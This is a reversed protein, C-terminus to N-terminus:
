LCSKASPSSRTRASAVPTASPLRHALWAALQQRGSDGIHLGLKTRRWLMDDPTMAWEQKLLHIAECEYFGAGFHVGLGAADRSGAFIRRAITGYTRVLRASTAMGLAPVAAALEAALRALGDPAFDGGPLAVNRTWAPGAAPFIAALKALVEEALHRYTTIKGGIITLLPAAGDGAELDLVFDRTADQASRKGDDYLSRVGAYSWVVDAPRVPAAFYESVARCLYEVEEKSISVAALDGTFDVDTTGILTYDQEYPIAFIVRRDANQFIYASEHAFLRKVVIHSGKVLRIAAHRGPVIGAAPGRAAWAGAANVLVRASVTEEQGSLTNRLTIQWHTPTRQASVVQTRVRIDAGRAAADMANLVVLRADDVWCDSYEFARTFTKKLPRGAADRSLALGRSPALIRRGGGLHDYLLLGLRILFAPRLGRHHPLVFRMPRVIHPALGLLVEREKLSSRVLGFEYQELYRLGGHILKTSASSTGSALDSQEALVVALGRGVADRAVGCGNIGGGIIAIDRM